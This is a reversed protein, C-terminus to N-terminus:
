KEAKAAEAAVAAVPAPKAALTIMHRFIGANLKHREKLVSVKEPDLEMTLELYFGGQQKKIPRAFARRELPKEGRIVGGVRKIDARVSEVAADVAETKMSDSFFYVGDYTKM